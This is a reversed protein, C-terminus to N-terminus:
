GIRSLVRAKYARRRRKLIEDKHREYYARNRCGLCYSQRKVALFPLRCSARRCFRTRDQVAALTAYVRWWFADLWPAESLEAGVVLRGKRHALQGTWKSLEVSHSGAGRGLEYGLVHALEALARRIPPKSHEEGSGFWQQRFNTFARAERELKTWRRSRPPPLPRTRALRFLWEARGRLAARLAEGRSEHEANM